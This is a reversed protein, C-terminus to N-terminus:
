SETFVLMLLLCIPRYLLSEATGGSSTFFEGLRLRAAGGGATRHTESEGARVPMIRARSRRREDRLSTIVKAQYKLAPYAGDATKL